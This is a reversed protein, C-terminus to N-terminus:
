VETTNHHHPSSASEAAKPFADTSTTAAIAHTLQAGIADVDDDGLPQLPHVAIILAVHGGHDFMPAAITAVPESVLGGEDALFGLTTFEVLLQDTIAQVRDPLGDDPLTGIFQAARTLAPTTRDVEYGRARTQHLIKDLRQQLTNNFAPSRRMWARQEEVSDWAAFAMGFPAAYRIRDGPAAALQDGQVGAFATILLSDDVREVVSTAYRTDQRLQRAVARARHALPRSADTRAAVAALVPGLAFTKDVPDRSVWGRTCLTTLIAHATAQTLDLRRVVDSFRLPEANALLEVVDLVRATPASQSGRIAQSRTRSVGVTCMNNSFM